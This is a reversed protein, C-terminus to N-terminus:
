RADTTRAACVRVCAVERCVRQLDFWIAAASFPQLAPPRRHCPDSWEMHACACLASTGGHAMLCNEELKNEHAVFLHIYQSLDTYLHSITISNFTVYM